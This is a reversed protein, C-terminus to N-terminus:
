KGWRAIGRGEDQLRKHRKFDEIGVGVLVLSQAILELFVQRQKFALTQDGIPMIAANAGTIFPPVLDIGM